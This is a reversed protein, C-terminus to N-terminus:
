GLSSEQEDTGPPLELCARVEAGALDGEGIKCASTVDGPMCNAIRPCSGRVATLGARRDGRLEGAHAVHTPLLRIPRCAADSNNLEPLRHARRQARRRDASCM